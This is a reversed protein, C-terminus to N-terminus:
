WFKVLTRQRIYIILTNDFVGKEKLTKVLRGVNFDIEEIVYVNAKFVKRICFNSCPANLSSFVFLITTRKEFNNIFNIGFNTYRETLLSQDPKIEVIENDLLVPLKEINMDNSYPIGFYTDFGKFLYFLFKMM